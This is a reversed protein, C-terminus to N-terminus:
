DSGGRKKPKDKKPPTLDPPPTPTPTGNPTPTPTPNVVAVGQVQINGGTLIGSRAYSGTTIQFTDVGTGPEDIDAVEIEYQQQAGNFECQGTFTASMGDSVYSEVTLIKIRDGTDHDQIVGSGHLQGKNQVQANFGFHVGENGGSKLIHGGGTAKSGSNSSARAAPVFRNSHETFPSEGAVTAPQSNVVAAVALAAAAASLASCLMLRFRVKM